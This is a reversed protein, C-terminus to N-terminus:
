ARTGGTVNGRQWAETPRNRAVTKGQLTGTPV